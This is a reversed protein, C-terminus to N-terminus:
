WFSPMRERKWSADAMPAYGAPQQAYQFVTPFLRPTGGKHGTVAAPCPPTLGTCRRSLGRILLVFSASWWPLVFLLACVVM